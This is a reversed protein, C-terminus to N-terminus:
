ADAQEEAPPQVVGDAPMPPAVDVTQGLWRLGEDIYRPIEWVKEEIAYKLAFESKKVDQALEWAKTEMEQASAGNFAFKKPNSLMFADEFSRGCAGGVEHPIQFAIRRRGHTKEDSKKALLVGLAPSNGGGPDFWRNVSANSSRTGESVKCKKNADDVSDLDTIILTRLELFDVLKYFLHAYAGGVEM